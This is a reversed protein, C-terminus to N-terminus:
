AKLRLALQESEVVDGGPRRRLVDHARDVTVARDRELAVIWRGKWALVAARNAQRGCVTNRRRIPLNGDRFETRAHEHPGNVGAPSNNGRDRHDAVRGCREAM